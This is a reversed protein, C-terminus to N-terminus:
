CPLLTCSGYRAVTPPWTLPISRIASTRNKRSYVATSVAVGLRVGLAGATAAEPHGSNPSPHNKRDRRWIRWAGPGSLGALPASAVLLLATLRAPILNALDDLRASAWGMRYYRENRYGVMSDLTSVAKYAL